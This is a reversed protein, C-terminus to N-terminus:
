RLVLRSVHEPGVQFELIMKRDTLRVQCADSEFLHPNYRVLDYFRKILAAQGILFESHFDSDSISDLPDPVINLFLLQYLQYRFWAEVLRKTNYRGRLDPKHWLFETILESLVAHLEAIDYLYLARYM